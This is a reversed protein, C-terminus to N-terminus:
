KLSRMYILPIDEQKFKKIVYYKLGWTYIGIVLVVYTSWLIALIIEYIKIMKM